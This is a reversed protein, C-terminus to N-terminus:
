DDHPTVSFGHLAKESKLLEPTIKKLASIDGTEVMDAAHRQDMRMGPAFACATLSPILGVLALKKLQTKSLLRM